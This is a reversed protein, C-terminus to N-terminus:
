GVRLRVVQKGSRVEDNGLFKVKYKHPGKSVGRFVFKRKGGRLEKFGLLKGGERIKVEGVVPDQTSAEVFVKLVVKRGKTKVDTEIDPRVPDVPEEVEPVTGAQATRVVDECDQKSYTVLVALAAGEDATVVRYASATAGNIAQADRLWQYAATVGDPTTTGPQATLLRGVEATGSVTPGGTVTIECTEPETGDAPAVAATQASTATGSALGTKAATVRVSMRKGVQAATLLFTQQTAGTVAIGDALWQYTFSTPENSWTGNTTSLTEGAKAIGSVVPLTKNTVKTPDDGVPDTSESTATGPTFGSPKSATVTVQISKGLQDETLVLRDTTAGAIPQGNASWQYAFTPSPDNWTGPTTTLTAGVVADGSIVPKVSNRLVGKTVRATMESTATRDPNSTTETVEFEIEADLLAPTLLLTRSTAGAIPEGNAIWRYTFTGGESWVGDTGTLTEGVVTMGNIQPLQRNETTTDGPGFPSSGVSLGTPLSNEPSSSTTGVVATVQVLYSKDDFAPTGLLIEVPNRSPIEYTTGTAGSIPTYGSGFTDSQFWQYAFTLGSGSWTGPNATLTEGEAAIGTIFPSQLNVPQGSTLRFDIRDVDVGNVTVDSADQLTSVARTGTTFFGDGAVGVRYTRSFVDLVYSGNVATDDGSTPIWDSLVPAGDEINEVYRYFAEVTKGPQPAGTRSRVTGRIEAPASLAFKQLSLSQEQGVTLNPAQDLGVLGPLFGETDGADGDVLKLRYSGSPLTLSFGGTGSLDDALDGDRGDDALVWTSHAPGGDEGQETYDVRKWLEIDGGGTYASGDSNVVSGGLTSLTPLSINRGTLVQNQAVTLNQAANPDTANPFYRVERGDGGVFELRFPTAPPVDLSYTGDAGTTATTSGLPGWTGLESADAPNPTYTIPTVVVGTLPSGSRDTVTGTVQTRPVLTANVTRPVDREVVFLDAGDRDSVLVADGNNVADVYSTGFGSGSFSMVYSGPRVTFSYSGNNGTTVTSPTTSVASYTTAGNQGVTRTQLAVTIGQIGQGNGNRVTGSVTVPTLPVTADVNSSSANLTTASASNAVAGGTAFWVTDVGAGSFRIKYGGSAREELEPMSPFSWAGGQASTTSTVPSTLDDSLFAEVTVGSEGASAGNAIRSVTGSFTITDGPAAM